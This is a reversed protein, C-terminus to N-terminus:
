YKCLIYTAVREKKKTKRRSKKEGAPWNLNASFSNLWIWGLFNLSDTSNSLIRLVMSLSELTQAKKRKDAWVLLPLEGRADRKPRAKDRWKKKPCFDLYLLLVYIM